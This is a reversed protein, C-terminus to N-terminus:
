VEVSTQTEELKRDIYRRTFHLVVFLLNAVVVMWGNIITGSGFFGLWTGILFFFIVVTVVPGLVLAPFYLIAVLLDLATLLRRRGRDGGYDQGPNQAPASPRKSRIRIPNTM